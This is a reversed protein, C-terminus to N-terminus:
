AGTNRSKKPIFTQRIPKVIDMEVDNQFAPREKAKCRRPNVGAKLGPTSCVDQFPLAKAM